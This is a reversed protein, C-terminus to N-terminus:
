QYSFIITITGTQEELKENKSFKTALAMKRAEEKLHSSSTTTGRGNAIAEVVNGLKDVTIEVVVTGIEHANKSFHPAVILQRNLLSYGLGKTPKLNLEGEIQSGSSPQSTQGQEPITEVPTRPIAKSFNEAIQHPLDNIPVDNGSEVLPEYQSSQKKESNFPVVQQSTHPTNNNQELTLSLDTPMTQAKASSTTSLKVYFLFLLTVVFSLVTVALSVKQNRYAEKSSIEM